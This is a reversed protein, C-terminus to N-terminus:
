RRASAGVNVTLAPGTWSRRNLQRLKLKFPTTACLPSTSGTSGTRRCGIRASFFDQSSANGFAALPAAHRALSLDLAGYSLYRQPGSLRGTGALRRQDAPNALPPLNHGDNLLSVLMQSPDSYDAEWGIYGLDFPEGPTALRSFLSGQPFTKIQVQIGIAALGTKVIQAQEPFPPTNITYLM